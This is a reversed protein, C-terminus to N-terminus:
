RDPLQARLAEFWNLVISVDVDNTVDNAIVRNRLFRGDVRSVDYDRASAGGPGPPMFDDELTIPV